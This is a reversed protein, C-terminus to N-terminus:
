KNPLKFISQKWCKSTNKDDGMIVKKKGVIYGMDGKTPADVRRKENQCQEHVVLIWFDM